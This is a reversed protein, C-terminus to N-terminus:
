NVKEHEDETGEDFQRFLTKFQSMDEKGGAKLVLM